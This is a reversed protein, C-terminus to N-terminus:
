RDDSLSAFSERMGLDVYPIRSEYEAETTRDRRASRLRLVLLLLFV